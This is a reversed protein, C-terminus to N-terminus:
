VRTPPVPANEGDAIERISARPIRVSGMRPLRAVIRADIVFLHGCAPGHPQQVIRPRRPPTTSITVRHRQGVSYRAAAPAEAEDSQNSSSCTAAPQCQEAAAEKFLRGRRDAKRM